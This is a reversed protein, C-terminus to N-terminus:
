TNRLLTTGQSTYVFRNMSTALRITSSMQSGTEIFGLRIRKDSEVTRFKRFSIVSWELDGTM